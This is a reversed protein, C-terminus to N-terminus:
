EDPVEKKDRMVTPRLPSDSTIMYIKLHKGTKERGVERLVGKLTWAKTLHLAYQVTVDATKALQPNTFTRLIQAAKWVRDSASGRIDGVEGLYRLVDGDREVLKDRVTLHVLSSYFNGRSIEPFVERLQTVTCEKRSAIFKQMQRYIVSTGFLIERESRSIPM